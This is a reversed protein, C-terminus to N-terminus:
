LVKGLGHAEKVELVAFCPLPCSLLFVSSCSAFAPKRPPAAEQSSMWQVPPMAEVEDAMNNQKVLSQPSLSLLRERPERTAPGVAKTSIHVETAPSIM